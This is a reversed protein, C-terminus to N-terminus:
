SAAKTISLCNSINATATFPWMLRIMSTFLAIRKLARSARRTSCASMNGRASHCREKFWSRYHRLRSSLYTILYYSRHHLHTLLSNPSVPELEQREIARRFLLCEYIVNAARAAQIKSPHRLLTDIGYFNSNVMIPARGRM